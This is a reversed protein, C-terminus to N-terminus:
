ELPKRATHRADVAHCTRVMFWVLGSIASMVVLLMFLVSWSFALGAQITKEPNGLTDGPARCGVCAAADMAFFGLTALMAMTMKTIRTFNM